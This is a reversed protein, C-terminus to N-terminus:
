GRVLVAALGAAASVLLLPILHVKFRVLAVLAHLFASSQL